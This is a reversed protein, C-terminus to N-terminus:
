TATAFAGAGSATFAHFDEVVAQAAADLLAQGDHPNALAPNSAIRGDPFRRRYDEAGRIPGDPAILPELVRAVARAEMHLAQTVAVESATAHRGEAKGYLGDRMATVTPFEWWNRLILAPAAAGLKAQVDEFTRRTPYINGGHGNLVYVHGFGHAALSSIWEGLAAIYTPASLTITGPFAMHHPAYGVAFTPAVLIDGIEGARRAVAEAVLADTGILGTPGHQETSGIPLMIAKDRTLREDVQTWTMLDLRM